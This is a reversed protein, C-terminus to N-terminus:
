FFTPGRQGEGAERGLAGPASNLFISQFIGLGFSHGTDNSATRGYYSGCWKHLGQFVTTLSRSETKLVALSGVRRQNEWLGAKRINLFIRVKLKSKYTPLHTNEGGGVSM